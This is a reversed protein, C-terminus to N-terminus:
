TVKTIDSAKPTFCLKQFTHMFSNNIDHLWVRGETVVGYSRRIPARVPFGSHGDDGELNNANFSNQHLNCGDGEYRDAKRFNGKMRGAAVCKKAM